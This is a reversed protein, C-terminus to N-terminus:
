EAMVALQQETIFYYSTVRYSIGHEFIGSSVASVSFVPKIGTTSMLGSSVDDQLSNMSIGGNRDENYLTESVASSVVSDSFFHENEQYFNNSIVNIGWEEKLFGVYIDMRDMTLAPESSSAEVAVAEKFKDYDMDMGALEVVDSIWTKSLGFKGDVAMAHMILEVMEYENYDLIDSFGVASDAKEIDSIMLAKVVSEVGTAAAALSDADDIQRNLADEWVSLLELPLAKHTRVTYEKDNFLVVVGKRETAWVGKGSGKRTSSELIVFATGYRGSLLIKTGRIDDPSRADTVSLNDLKLGAVKIRGRPVPNVTRTVNEKVASSIKGASFGGSFYRVSRKKETYRKRNESSVTGHRILDYVGKEFSECYLKWIKNKVQTDEIQLGGTNKRDIYRAYFSEKFRLKFWAALVMAHYMQRLQVFNRGHNIEKIIEPLLCDKVPNVPNEGSGPDVYDQRGRIRPLHQRIVNQNKQAASYDMETQAVLGAEAVWVFGDREMVELNDTDPTIWIKSFGRTESHHIISSSNNIESWYKEGLETDPHTLSSSLQKLIYDQGLLDRGLETEGLKEEIIREPEYPSLNVWLSEEPCALAAFFYNILRRTDEESIDDKEATDFIFEFSFPDNYDLKLGRLFPAEYNIGIKVARAPDPLGPVSAGTEKIGAFDILAASFALTVATIYVLFGSNFYNNRHM